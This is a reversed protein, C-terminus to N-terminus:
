NNARTASRPSSPGCSGRGRASRWGRSSRSPPRPGAVGRLHLAGPRRQHRDLRQRRSRGLVSGRRQRELDTRRRDVHSDLFTRSARGSRQRRRALFERFRRLWPLRDARGIQFRRRRDGGLARHPGRFVAGTGSGCGVPPAALGHRRRGTGPHVPQRQAPWGSERVPAVHWEAIAVIRGSQHGVHHGALGGRLVLRGNSRSPSISVSSAIPLRPGTTAFYGAPHRWGCGTWAM